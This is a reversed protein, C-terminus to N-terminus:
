KTGHDGKLTQHFRRIWVGVNWKRFIYRLIITGDVGPDVLYDRERPNGWWFATYAERRGM